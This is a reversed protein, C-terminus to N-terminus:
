VLTLKYGAHQIFNQCETPSFDPLISAITDWLRDRTRAAAKRLLAKFKSFALEIPNLDPSYPPLYRLTAGAAEIAAAIAPSKHSSLNDMIVIDGPKLTPVLFQEIYALFIQGNMPGDLIMPATMGTSRLAGVFTTTNWHGWPAKDVLRQGILCRGYRRAMKTSAGTEDIFVMKDPDLFPQEAKWAARAEAVDPRDQEAAHLVKKYSLGMRELHYWIAQQTVTLGREILEERLEALTLDGRQEIRERLWDTHADLVSGPRRGVKAPAIEGTERWRRVITVATNTGVMFRRAASHASHGEQVWAIIRERLDVSLAKAM